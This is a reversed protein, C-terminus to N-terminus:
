ITMVHLYFCVTFSAWSDPLDLLRKDSWNKKTTIKQMGCERRYKDGSSGEKLLSSLSLFGVKSAM